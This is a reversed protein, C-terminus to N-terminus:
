KHLLLHNFNSLVECYGKSFYTEFHTTEEQYPKNVVNLTIYSKHHDLTHDTDRSSYLDAWGSHM